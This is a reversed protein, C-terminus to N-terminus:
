AVPVERWANETLPCRGCLGRSCFQRFLHLMGQEVAASGAAPPVGLQRRMHRTVANDPSAPYQRLLRVVLSLRVVDGSVIASAAVYPLLANVVMERAKSGGVIDSERTRLGFDYHNRWFVDGVVRCSRELAAACERPRAVAGDLEAYVSAALDPLGPWLGALAVVRRVPSNNPYLGNFTWRRADMSEVSPVWKRWLSEWHPVEGSVPLGAHRRQSPLLGALGLMVACREDDVEVDHLPPAGPSTLLVALDMVAAANASYGLARAIRRALVVWPREHALDGALGAARELLRAVGLRALAGPAADRHGKGWWRCPLGERGMARGRGDMSVTPVDAGSALPTVAGPSADGVVHLVVGDYAHDLHHGHRQWDGAHLHLEVDGRRMAGGPTTVVADKFDPGASGRAIGPYVVRVCMGGATEFCAGATQAWAAQLERESAFIRKRTAM